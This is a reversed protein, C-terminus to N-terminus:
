ASDVLTSPVYARYSFLGHMLLSKDKVEDVERGPGM